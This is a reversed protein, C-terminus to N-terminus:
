AATNFRQLQEELAAFKIRENRTLQKRWVSQAVAWPRELIISVIEVYFTFPVDQLADLKLFGISTPQLASTCHLLLDRVAQLHTPFYLV